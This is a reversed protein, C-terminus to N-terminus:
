QKGGQLINKCNSIIQKKIEEILEATYKKAGLRRFLAEKHIKFMLVQGILCHAQIIAQHESLDTLRMVLSTLKNHMPELVDTYLKNYVNTPQIIEKIILEAQDNSIKNSCLFDVMNSVFLELEENASITQNQQKDAFSKMKEIVSDLVADYLKQKTGFYYNISCLNVGSAKVLDRTSVSDLGQKAFLKTATQLLKEKTEKM